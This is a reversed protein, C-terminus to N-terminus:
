LIKAVEFHMPDPRGKFHGGWYFGLKNAIPVLERVSGQCGALAGRTGLYNWAVNIDFASGYAHNSLRTRSGRIFRPVYSGGFNMILHTLDNKEWTEFLELFQKEVKRNILINGKNAGKVNKLQSVNVKIINDKGWNDTIIIAEPDNSFGAPKFAFRGFIAQRGADDLPDFDPRPPWDPSVKNPEYIDEDIFGLKQAAGYTNTGVVGDQSLNQLKQFAITALKTQTDFIGDVHNFFLGQGILFHQWATVEPGVDDLKIMSYLVIAGGTPNSGM